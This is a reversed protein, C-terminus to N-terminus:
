DYVLSSPSPAQLCRIAGGTEVFCSGAYGHTLRDANTVGVVAVPVASDVQTGDGLQGTDNRGWCSMTGDARRICTSHPPGGIEVAGALGSVAVPTASSTNTGNGLQGYTNSGWCRV